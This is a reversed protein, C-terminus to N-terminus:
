VCLHKSLSQVFNSKLQEYNNLAYSYLRIDDGVIEDLIEYERVDCDIRSEYKTVNIQRNILRSGLLNSLTFILDDYYELPVLYIKHKVIHEVAEDFMPKGCLHWCQLNLEKKHLMDNLLQGFNEYCFNGHEEHKSQTLYHQLSILRLVPERVIAITPYDIGKELLESHSLHGTVYNYNKLVDNDLLFFSKRDEENQIRISKEAGFHRELEFNLSLGATKPVHIFSLKELKM